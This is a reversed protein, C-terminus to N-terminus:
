NRHSQAANISVTLKTNLYSSKFVGLRTEDERLLLLSTIADDRMVMGFRRGLKKPLKSRIDFRCRM